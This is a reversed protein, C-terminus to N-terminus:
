KEGSKHSLEQDGETVGQLEQKFSYIAIWALIDFIIAIMIAFMIAIAISGGALDSNKIAFLIMFIISHLIDIPILVLAPVLMKESKKIYSFILCGFAALGFAGLIWGVYAHTRTIVFGYFKNDNAHYLVNISNIVGLIGIVLCAIPISCCCCKKWVPIGMKEQTLSHKLSFTAYGKGLTAKYLTCHM